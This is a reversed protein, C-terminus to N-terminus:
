VTLREFYDNSSFFPPIAGARSCPKYGLSALAAEDRSPPPSTGMAAKDCQALGAAM